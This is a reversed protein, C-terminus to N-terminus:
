PALGRDRRHVSRIDVVAINHFVGDDASGVRAAECDVGIGPLERKGGQGFLRVVCVRQLDLGGVTMGAAGVNLRDRDINRRVLHCAILRVQQRVGEHKVIFESCVRNLVEVEIMVEQLEIASHETCIRGSGHKTGRMVITMAIHHDIRMRTMERYLADRQGLQSGV